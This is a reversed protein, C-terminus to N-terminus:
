SSAVVRDVVALRRGDLLEVVAIATVSSRAIAPPRRAAVQERRDPQEARRGVRRDRGGVARREDRPSVAPRRRRPVAPDAAIAARTSRRGIAHGSAPARLGADGASPRDTTARRPAAASTLRAPAPRHRPGAPPSGRRRRAAERSASWASGYAAGAGAGSRAARVAGASGASPGGVPLRCTLCGASPGRGCGATARSGTRRSPRRRSRGRRSRDELALAEVREHRHLDEGALVRTRHPISSALFRSPWTRASASGVSVCSSASSSPSRSRAWPSRGGSGRGSGGPEPQVLGRDEPHQGLRGAPRGRRALADVDGAGSGTMENPARWTWGSM